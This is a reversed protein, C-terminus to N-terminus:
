ADAPRHSPPRCLRYKTGKGHSFKAACEAAIDSRQWRQVTEAREFRRRPVAAESARGSSSSSVFAATLWRMQRSSSCNPRRRNVRVARAQRQGRLRRRDAPRRRPMRWDARQSRRIQQAGSVPADQVTLAVGVSAAFHSTGRSRTTGRRRMGADLHADVGAHPQHIERALADVHRDAVAATDPRAQPRIPKHRDSSKERDAARRQQTSRHRQPHGRDRGRM